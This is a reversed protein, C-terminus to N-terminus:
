CNVIQFQRDAFLHHVRDDRVSARRRRGLTAAQQEAATAPDVLRNARAIQGAIRVAEQDIGRIVDDMTAARALAPELDDAEIVGM